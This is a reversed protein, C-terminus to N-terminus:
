KDTDDKNKYTVLYGLGGALCALACGISSADVFACIVAAIIATLILLFSIYQGNRRFTAANKSEENAIQLANQEMTQRHKFQEQAMSVIIKQVDDPYKALIEPPPIPGDFLSCEFTRSFVHANANHDSVHSREVTQNKIARSKAM